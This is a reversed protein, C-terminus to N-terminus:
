RRYQFLNAIHERRRRGRAGHDDAAPESRRRARHGRHEARRAAGASRQADARHGAGPHLRRVARHRRGWWHRGLGFDLRRECVPERGASPQRSRGWAGPPRPNRDPGAFHRMIRQPRPNRWAGAASRRDVAPEGLAFRHRGGQRSQYRVVRLGAARHPRHHWAASSELSRHSTGAHSHRRLGGRRLFPFRSPEVLSPQRRPQLPWRRSRRSVRLLLEVAIPAARERELRASHPGPLSRDRDKRAPHLGM